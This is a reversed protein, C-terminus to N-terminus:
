ILQFKGTDGVDEDTALIKYIVTNVPTGRPINVTASNNVFMPPNDNVDDVLVEVTTPESTLPPKGNDTASIQLLYRNEEERDLAETTKLLAEGNVVAITFKTIGSTQPYIQSLTYNIPPAFAIIDKDTARLSLLVTDIAVNELVHVSYNSMAFEPANDNIDFIVVSVKARASLPGTPPAGSDTARVHFIYYDCSESHLELFNSINGSASDIQFPVLCAPNFPRPFPIIEYTLRESPNDADTARVQGIFQNLDKTDDIVFVYQDELLPEFLFEPRHLDKDLVHVTITFETRRSPTGEDEAVVTLSYNGKTPLAPAKTVLTGNPTDFGFLGSGDRLSLQVNGNLGADQDTATILCLIYGASVGKEVYVNSPIYGFVPSNDNVDIVEVLVVATGTLAPVGDDTALVVVSYSSQMERDLPWKTRVIGDTAGVTFPLDGENRISFVITQNADQPIVSVQAVASPDTEETVSVNYVELSFRLAEESSTSQQIDYTFQSGNSQMYDILHLYTTKKVKSIWINYDPKILRGDSRRVTNLALPSLQYESRFYVWGVNSSMTTM